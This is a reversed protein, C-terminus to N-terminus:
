NAAGPLLRLLARAAAAGLCASQGKALGAATSVLCLQTGRSPLIPAEWNSLM